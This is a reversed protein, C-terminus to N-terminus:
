KGDRGYLRIIDIEKESLAIDRLSPMATVDRIHCLTDLHRGVTSLERCCAGMLGNALFQNNLTEYAECEARLSDLKVDVKVIAKVVEDHLKATDFIPKM